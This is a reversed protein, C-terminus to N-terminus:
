INQDKFTERYAEIIEKHPVDQERVPTAEEAAYASKESPLDRYRQYEALQKRNYDERENKPMDKKNPYQQEKEEKRKDMKYDIDQRTKQEIEEQENYARRGKLYDARHQLEHRLIKVPVMRHQPERKENFSKILVRRNVNVIDGKAHEMGEGRLRRTWYAKPREYTGAYDEDPEFDTDIVLGKSKEILEPHKEYVKRIKKYDKPSYNSPYGFKDKVPKYIYVKKDILYKDFAAGGHFRKDYRKCDFINKVGDKDFDGMFNNMVRNVPKNIIKNIPKFNNKSKLKGLGRKIVNDINMM